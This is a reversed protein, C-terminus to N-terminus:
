VNGLLSDLTDKSGAKKDVDIADTPCAIECALCFICDRERTPVAVESNLTELDFVNTPCADICKMCGNCSDVYVGVISGHIIGGDYDSVWM